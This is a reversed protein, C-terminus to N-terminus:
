QFGVDNSRQMAIESSLLDVRRTLGDVLEAVQINRKNASERVQVVRAALGVDVCCLIWGCGYAVLAAAGGMLEKYRM